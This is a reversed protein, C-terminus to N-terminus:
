DGEWDWFYDKNTLEAAPELWSGPGSASRNRRVPRVLGRWRPSARAPEELDDTTTRWYEESGFDPWGLRFAPDEFRRALWATYRVMRMGRLVEVLRLSGRDFVRFREYGELFLERLRLSEPDRGPILLWMDQVAPGSAADDFDLVRLEGDRLLVNGLHLDAHLRHIDVERM